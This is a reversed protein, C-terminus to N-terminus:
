EDAEFNGSFFALIDSYVKEKGLENIIEHKMGAYEKCRVNVYGAKRLYKEIQRLGRKGGPMPDLEGSLSLVPLEPNNCKYKKARSIERNSEFVTANAGITYSYGTCKPDQKLEAMIEPNGCIWDDGNVEGLATILRSYKNKSSFFAFLSSIFIGIHSAPIYRVTGSLIVKKYEADHEQLVCRGLMSGFSHAFMYIDKGPFMEKIYNIILEQDGVLRKVGDMHGLFYENNVSDGHGRNDTIICAFGNASLYKMIDYYRAKHEKVGHIFHIVGKAECDEGVPLSLAASIKLGDAATITFEKILEMNEDKGM